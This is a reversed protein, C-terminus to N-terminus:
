SYGYPNGGTYHDGVAHNGYPESYVLWAGSKVLVAWNYPIASIDRSTPLNYPKIFIGTNKVDMAWNGTSGNVNWSTFGVNFASVSKCGEFMGYYCWEALTSATLTPTYLLSSCNEFM